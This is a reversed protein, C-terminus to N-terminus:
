LLNESCGAVVSLEGKSEFDTHSATCCSVKKSEEEHKQSSRNDSALVMRESYAQDLTMLMHTRPNCHSVCLM